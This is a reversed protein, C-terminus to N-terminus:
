GRQEGAKHSSGDLVETIYEEEGLTTTPADDSSAAVPQTPADLDTTHEAPELFTLDADSSMDIERLDAFVDPTAAESYVAGPQHSLVVASINDLERRGMVLDAVESLTRAMTDEDANVLPAFTAQIEDDFLENRYGDCCIMYTTGEADDGRLFVPQLDSQTGVSQLIVNKRPHNRAQAPTIAGRALERAVWTQDDTLQQMQGAAFRYVRTDGIHIILYRGRFVLIATLTTGLSANHERGYSRLADNVQLAGSEWEIQVADLLGELDGNREELLLPCRTEFWNVLWYIMSCSALEGSALGGVGDCVCALAVDGYPTTAVEAFCSDQNTEKRLGINSYAAVRYM